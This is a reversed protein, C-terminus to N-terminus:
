CTVVTRLWVAATPEDTQLVSLWCCLTQKIESFLSRQSHVLQRWKTARCVAVCCLVCKLAICAHMCLICVSMLCVPKTMVHKATLSCHLSCPVVSPSSSDALYWLIIDHFSNLSLKRLQKMLYLSFLNVPVVYTWFTQRQSLCLGALTSAMPWSYWWDTVAGRQV